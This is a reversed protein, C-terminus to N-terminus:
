GVGDRLRKRYMLPIYKAAVLWIDLMSPIPTNEPLKGLLMYLINEGSNLVEDGHGDHLNSIENLMM